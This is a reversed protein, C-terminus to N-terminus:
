YGGILQSRKWTNAATCVYIYNSDWCIQGVSGTDNAAKTQQAATLVGNITLNAVNASAGGSLISGTIDTVIYTNEDLNGLQMKTISVPAGGGGGASNAAQWKNLSASWTLVQGQSPTKATFYDVDDLKHLKVEGSGPSSWGGGGMAASYAIRSVRRDLQERYQEFEKKIPTIDAALGDSGKEGQEGREGKPGVDGRDGKDGKVGDQGRIGGEGQAGAVGQAGVAGTEGKEGRPGTDGKQGRSGQKGDIGDSGNKGNAGKIGQVGQPGIPGRNGQEGRPGVDGTEGKDGREGQIGQAGQLGIDGREGKPGRPGVAGISGREGKLGRPGVPGEIIELKEFLSVERTTIDERIKQLQEKTNQKSLELAAALIKATEVNNM